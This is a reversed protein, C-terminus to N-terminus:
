SNELPVGALASPPLAREAPDTVVRIAVMPLRHRAAVHAVVHSEMDVALAGTDRWARAKDDETAIIDSAGLM